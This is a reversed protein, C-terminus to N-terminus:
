ALLARAPDRARAEHLEEARLLARHLGAAPLPPPPVLGGPQDQEGSLVEDAGRQPASPRGQVEEPTGEDAPRVAAHEADLPDSPDDAARPDDPRPDDARRDVLGLAPGCHRAAMRPRPAARERAPPAPQELR